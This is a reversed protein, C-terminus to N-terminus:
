KLFYIRNVQIRPCNLTGNVEEGPCPVSIGMGPNDGDNRSPQGGYETTKMIMYPNDDIKQETLSEYTEEDEIRDYHEAIMEFPNTHGNDPTSVHCGQPVHIDDYISTNREVNIQNLKRSRILLFMIIPILILLLVSSLVSIIVLIISDNAKKELRIDPMVSDCIKDVSVDNSGISSNEYRDVWKYIRVYDIIFLSCKWDMVDNIPSVPQPIYDGVGLNIRLRFYQDFPQGKRSYILGFNRSINM